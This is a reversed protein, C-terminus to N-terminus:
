QGEELDSSAPTTNTPIDRLEESDFVESCELCELYEVDDERAVIRVRPHQCGTDMDPTQDLFKSM